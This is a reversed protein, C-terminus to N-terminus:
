TTWMDRLARAPGFSEDMLGCAMSPLRTMGSSWITMSPHYPVTGCLSPHGCPRQSPAHARLSAFCADQVTLTQSPLSISKRLCEQFALKLPRLILQISHTCVAIRVPLLSPLRAMGFCQTRAVTYEPRRGRSANARALVRGVKWPSQTRGLPSGKNITLNVECTL